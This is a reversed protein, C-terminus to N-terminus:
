FKVVISVVEKKISKCASISLEERKKRTKVDTTDGCTNTINGTNKQSKRKSLSNRNNMDTEIEDFNTDIYSLVGNEIAWKFFNLQGITTEIGTHQNIPFTIRERRCFPDFRSKNYAKLELKYNNFVKFREMGEEGNIVTSCRNKAPIKYVTFYEKAYNTVFWDILRLSIRSENNIIQLFQQMNADVAYFDKLKQMLLENQTPSRISSLM